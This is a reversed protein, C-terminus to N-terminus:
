GQTVPDLKRDLEKHLIARILKSIDGEYLPNNAASQLMDLEAGNVMFTVRIPRRRNRPATRKLEAIIAQETM